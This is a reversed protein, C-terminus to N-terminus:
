ATLVTLIAEYQAPKSLEYRPNAYKITGDQGVIFISRVAGKGKENLVGYAGIVRKEPDALLPFPPDGLKEAFRQHSAMTDASIALVRASARQFRAYDEKFSTM